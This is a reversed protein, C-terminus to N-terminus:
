PNTTAEEPSSVMQWRGDPSLQIAGEAHLRAIEAEVQEAPCESFDDVLEATTLGETSAINAYLLEWLESADDTPQPPRIDDLTQEQTKGMLLGVRLTARQFVRLINLWEFYTDESVFDGLDIPITAQCAAVMEAYTSALDVVGMAMVKHQEPGIM